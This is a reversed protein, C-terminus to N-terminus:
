PFAPMSPESGGMVANKHAEIKHTINEVQVLPIDAMILIKGSEMASEFEKLRTNKTSSGIMGSTWIGFGAGFITCGLVVLGMMSGLQLATIAIISGVLGSIGGIVMGTEIGHVIDSKEFLTAEPLDGLDTGEKAMVHIHHDDIRALLLENVVQQASDLNPLLFYLRKRM